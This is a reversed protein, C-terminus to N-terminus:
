YWNIIYPLQDIYGKYGNGYNKIEGEENYKRLGFHLHPGSSFGSNGSLGINDGLYIEQDIKIKIEYLHGLIVENEKYDRIRVFKGYGKNGQDGTEIIIGGIPAYIKTGTKCRYDIGNHGKLWFQAYISPREGFKQTIYPSSIVKDLLDSKLPCLIM